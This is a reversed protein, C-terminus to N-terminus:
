RRTNALEADLRALGNDHLGHNKAVTKAASLTRRAGVSENTKIQAWCLNELSTLHQHHDGLNRALDIALLSSKISEAYEGKLLHLGGLEALCYMRDTPRPPDQFCRLAKTYWEIASDYREARDDLEAIAICVDGQKRKVGIDSFMQESKLYRVRAMQLNNRKELVKAEALEREALIYKDDTNRLDARSERLLRSANLTDGENEYINSLEQTIKIVRSTNNMARALQLSERLANKAEPIRGIQTLLKGLNGLSRAHLRPLNRRKAIEVAAEYMQLASEHEGKETHIIARENYTNGLREWNGNAEFRVMAQNVWKEAEEWESLRISIQALVQVADNAENSEPHEQLLEILRRRADDYDGKVNAATAVMLSISPDSAAGESILQDYSSIRKSILQKDAESVAAPTQFTSAGVQSLLEVFLQKIEDLSPGQNVTVNMDGMIVSDKTQVLAQEVLQNPPLNGTLQASGHIVENSLHQAHVFRGDLVNWKGDPTVSPDSDLSVWGEPTMMWKGDPSTPYTAM